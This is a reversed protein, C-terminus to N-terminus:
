VKYKQLSQHHNKFYAEPYRGLDMVVQFLFSVSSSLKLLTILLPMNDYVSNKNEMGVGNDQQTFICPNLLLESWVPSSNISCLQGGNISGTFLVGDLLFQELVKVEELNNIDPTGQLHSAINAPLTQVYLLVKTVRNCVILMPLKMAKLLHYMQGM